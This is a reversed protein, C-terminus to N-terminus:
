LTSFGMFDIFHPKMFHKLFGSLMKSIDISLNHLKGFEKESIYKLELTLYIMSRVEGCSSKAICTAKSKYLLPSESAM